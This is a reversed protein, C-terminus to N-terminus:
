GVDLHKYSEVRDLVKVLYDRTEQAPLEDILFDYVEQESMLNIRRAASKLSTTGSFTKALNGVGTNYAAIACYFRSYPNEVLRLYGDRM